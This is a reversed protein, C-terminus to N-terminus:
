KEEEERQKKLVSFPIPKVFINLDYHAQHLKTLFNSFTKKLFKNKNKLFYIRCLFELFEEFTLKKFKQM